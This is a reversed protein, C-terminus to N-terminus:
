PRRTIVFNSSTPGINAQIRFTSFRGDISNNNEKLNQGVKEAMKGILLDIDNKHTFIINTEIELNEGYNVVVPKDVGRCTITIINEDHLLTDVREFGVIDRKIYYYYLNINEQNFDKKFKKLTRSIITKMFDKNNILSYDKMFKEFFLKKAEDMINQEVEAEKIAYLFKGDKHVLDAKAIAKGSAGKFIVRPYNQKFSDIQQEFNLKPKIPELHVLEQKILHKIEESKQKPQSPRILPKTTKKLIPKPLKATRSALLLAHIFRKGVVLDDSEPKTELSKVIEDLQDVSRKFVDDRIFKVDM